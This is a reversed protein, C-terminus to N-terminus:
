QAARVQVDINGRTARSYPCRQHAANALSQVADHDMDPIAVTLVVALGFLGSPDKGLSVEATVTSVGADKGDERAASMLASQFCAAYGAAFLQEPNTAPDGGRAGPTGLELDLVGDDSAAHGQRGGTVVVSTTYVPDITHM